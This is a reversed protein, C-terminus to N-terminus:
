VDFDSTQVRIRVYLSSERVSFKELIELPRLDMVYTNLYLQKHFSSVLGNITIEFQFLGKRRWSNHLILEANYPNFIKHNIFVSKLSGYM